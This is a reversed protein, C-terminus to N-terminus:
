QKIKKLFQTHTENYMLTKVCADLKNFRINVVILHGTKDDLNLTEPTLKFERWSPIKQYYFRSAFAKDYCLWKRDLYTKENDLQLKYVVKLDQRKYSKFSENICTKNYDAQSYNPLLTESHFKLRNSICNFGDTLTKQFVEAM